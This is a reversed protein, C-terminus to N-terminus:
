SEPYKALSEILTELNDHRETRTYGNSADGFRLTWGGDWFSSIEVNQELDYIRQLETELGRRTREAALEAEFWECIATLDRGQLQLIRENAGDGLVFKNGFRIQMETPEDPRATVPRFAGCGTSEYEREHERKPEGCECIENSM